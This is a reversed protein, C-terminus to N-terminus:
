GRYRTPTGSPTPGGTKKPEVVLGEGLVELQQSDFYIGDVKGDKGVKPMVCFQVCGNLYELRATVIGEFGSVRDRVKYGLKIERYTTV